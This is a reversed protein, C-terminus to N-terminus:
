FLYIAEVSLTPQYGTTRGGLQFVNQNSKDYRYELPTILSTFAKYQITSTAEWLTQAVAPAATTSTVWLLRQSATSFGDDRRM